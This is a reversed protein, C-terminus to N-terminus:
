WGPGPLSAKMLSLGMRLVEEPLLLTASAISPYQHKLLISIKSCHWRGGTNRVATDVRLKEGPTYQSTGM